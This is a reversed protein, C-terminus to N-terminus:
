RWTNKSSSTFSNKSITKQKASPASKSSTTRLLTDEVIKPKSSHKSIIIPKSSLTSPKKVLSPKKENRTVDKSPIRETTSIFDALKVSITKSPSYELDNKLIKSTDQIANTLIVSLSERPTATLHSQTPTNSSIIRPSPKPSGFSGSASKGAKKKPLTVVPIPSLLSADENSMFIVDPEYEKPQSLFELSTINNPNSSITPVTTKPTNAEKESNDQKKDSFSCDKEFPSGLNFSRLGAKQKLLYHFHITDEESFTPQRESRPTSAYASIFKDVEEEIEQESLHLSPPRLHEDNASNSTLNNSTPQAPHEDKQDKHAEKENDKLSPAENKGTNEELTNM